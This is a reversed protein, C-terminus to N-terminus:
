GLDLTLNEAKKAKTKPAQKYTVELLRPLQSEPLSLLPINSRPLLFRNTPLELRRYLNPSPQPRESRELHCKLFLLLPLQGV